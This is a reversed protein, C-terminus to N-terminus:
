SMSLFKLYGELKRRLYILYVYFGTISKHDNANKVYFKTLKGFKRPIGIILFM